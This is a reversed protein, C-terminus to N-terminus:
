AAIQHSPEIAHRHHRVPDGGVVIAELDDLHVAASDIAHQNHRDLCLFPPTLLQSRAPLANDFIHLPHSILSALQDVVVGRSFEVCASINRRWSSSTSSASRMPM